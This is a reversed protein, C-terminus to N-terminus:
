NILKNIDIRYVAEIYTLTLKKFETYLLTIIIIIVVIDFIRSDSQDDVARVEATITCNCVDHAQLQVTTLTM